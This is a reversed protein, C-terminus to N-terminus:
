QNFEAYHSTLIVEWSGTENIKLSFRANLKCKRKYPINTLSDLSKIATEPIRYYFNYGNAKPQLYPWPRMSAMTYVASTDSYVPAPNTLTYGQFCNLWRLGNAPNLWNTEGTASRYQLWGKKMNVHTGNKGRIKFILQNGTESVKKVSLVTNRNEYVRSYKEQDITTFATESNALLVMWYPDTTMEFPLSSFQLIAHGVDKYTKTGASNTVQLDYKYESGPLDLTGANFIAAGSGELIMMPTYRVKSRKATILAETTDIFPDYTGTWGLTYRPTTLDTTTVWQDGKKVRVDLLKVKIPQSTGDLVLPSTRVESAGRTVYIPEENYRVYDSLYGVKIDKTCATYILCILGIAICSMMVKIKNQKM